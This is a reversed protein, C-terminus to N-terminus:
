VATAAFKVNTISSLQKPVWVSETSTESLTDATRREQATFTAGTDPATIVPSDPSSEARKPSSKSTEAPTLAAAKVGAM